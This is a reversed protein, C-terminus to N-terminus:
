VPLQQSSKKDLVWCHKEEAGGFENWKQVIFLLLHILPFRIWKRLWSPWTCLCRAARWCGTALGWDLSNWLCFFEQWVVFYFGGGGREQTWATFCFALEALDPSVDNAVAAPPMYQTDAHSHTHGQTNVHAHTQTQWSSTVQNSLQATLSSGVEHQWFLFWYSGVLSPGCRARATLGEGRLFGGRKACKSRKGEEGHM